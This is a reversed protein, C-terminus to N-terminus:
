FDFCDFCSFVWVLMSFFQLSFILFFSLSFCVSLNAIRIMITLTLTVIVDLNSQRRCSLFLLVLLNTAEQLSKKLDESPIFTQRNTHFHEGASLVMCELDFVHSYVVKQGLIIPSVPTFLYSSKKRM